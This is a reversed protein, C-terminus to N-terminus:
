DLRTKLLPIAADVEEMRKNSINWLNRSNQIAEERDWGAAILCKVYNITSHIKEEITLKM